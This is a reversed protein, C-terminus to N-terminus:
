GNKCEECRIEYDLYDFTEYEKGCEQCRKIM